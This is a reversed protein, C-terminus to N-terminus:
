GSTICPVPSPASIAAPLTRFSIRRYTKGRGGQRDSEAALPEGGSAKAESMGGVADHVDEVPCRRRLPSQGRLRKAVGAGGPRGVDSASCARDRGGPPANLRAM